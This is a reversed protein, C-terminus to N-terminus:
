RTEFHNFFTRPAVDARACIEEIKAGRIGHQQFLDIAADILAQRNRRRRREFRNAPQIPRELKASVAM